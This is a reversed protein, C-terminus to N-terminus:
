KRLTFLLKPAEFIFAPLKCACVSEETFIIKPEAGIHVADVCMDGGSYDTNGLSGGQMNSFRRAAMRPSLSGALSTPWGGMQGPSAPEDPWVESHGQRREPMLAAVIADSADLLWALRAGCRSLFVITKKSKKHEQM